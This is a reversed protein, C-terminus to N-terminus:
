GYVEYVYDIDDTNPTVPKATLWLEEILGILLYTAPYTLEPVLSNRYETVFDIFADNVRHRCCSNAFRELMAGFRNLNIDPDDMFGDSSEFFDHVTIRAPDLNEM